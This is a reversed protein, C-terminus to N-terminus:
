STTTEQHLGSESLYEKFIDQVLIKMWHFQNMLKIIFVILIAFDPRYLQTCQLKRFNAHLQLLSFSLFHRLRIKKFFDLENLFIWFNWLHPKKVRAPFTLLQGWSKSQFHYYLTYTFVEVVLEPPILRWFDPTLFFKQGVNLGLNPGFNPNWM